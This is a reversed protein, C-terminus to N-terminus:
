SGEDSRKGKFTSVRIGSKEFDFSSIYGKPQLIQILTINLQNKELLPRKGPVTLNEYPEDLANLFTDQEDNPVQQQKWNFIRIRAERALSRNVIIKQVLSDSLRYSNNHLVLHALAAILQDDATLVKEDLKETLRNKEELSFLDTQLIAIIDTKDLPYDKFDELFVGKNEAIFGIHLGARFKKVRTYNAPNFDLMQVALLSRVKSVSLSKIDLDEYSYQVSKIILGYVEDSIENELVLADTFDSYKEEGEEDTPIVDESLTAANGPAELFGIIPGSLKEEETTEYYHFVNNWTAEAKSAQMLLTKIEEEKINELDCIKTEVQSIIKIKNDITIDENNLLSVLESDDENTNSDIKFYVNELYQNINDHVYGALDISNGNMIAYYNRTDFDVQNFSNHLGLLLKIMHPNLEYYNNLTFFERFSAPIDELTTFKLKLIKVIALTRERDEPIDFFNPSETISKKFAPLAYMKKIDDVDTYDIILKFYADMKEKTYNSKEKVYTWIGTWKKTLGTIFPAISKGSEIFRDLYEVSMTSENSLQTFLNDLLNANDTTSLLFDTLNFNLIYPESFDRPNIKAILKDTRELPYEYATRNQTKVNMLFQHDTKTLTGEYFISVYDLYNEDIFGNKLLLSILTKQVPNEIELSLHGKSLLEQIKLSRAQLKEKEFQAIEKKLLEMKNSNWDKIQQERERYTYKKDVEKEIQSFKIGFKIIERSYVNNYHPKMSFYMTKTDDMLYPFSDDETMELVNKESNIKSFAIFNTAHKVFQLVYLSRLEKVSTIQLQELQKIENKHAKIRLDLKAVEDEIYSQKKNMADFLVGKNDTLLTFDYPFINKYVLIALLKDQDLTKNLKLHYLYYENTISHLLRMDDIFFSIDEILGESINFQYLRKKELLKQSSNSANIIPIVPIIYDFFKTREREGKFMDDRVAYIFIVKKDIKKSNNILLNIERLKTFIETQQFRDLDEIIVVNYNTVEFFYLIEDLHQNFVSKGASEDVKIEANHINLKEIKVANFTRISRYVLQFLGAAILLVSAYHIIQLTYADIGVSLVYSWFSVYKLSLVSFIVAVISGTTFVLNTKSFSKIKKFRSDPIKDDKEHYFIQQLVSLEILRLIDEREATKESIKEEKFTALSVLLFHLDKNKNTDMYTKLISSKGSGYPGTLAINRIENDKRPMLAWDLAKRYDNDIDAHGTPTLPMYPPNDVPLLAQKRFIRDWWSRIHQKITIRKHNM